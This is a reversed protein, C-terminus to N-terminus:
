YHTGPREAPSPSTVLVQRTHFAQHDIPAVAEDLRDVVTFVKRVPELRDAGRLLRRHPTQPRRLMAVLTQRCRPPPTHEVDIGEDLECVLQQRVRVRIVDRLGLVEQCGQVGLNADKALTWHPHMTSTPGIAAWM